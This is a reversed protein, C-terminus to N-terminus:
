IGAEQFRGFTRVRPNIKPSQGGTIQEDAGYPVVQEENKAIAKLWDLAETRAAARSAKLEINLRRFASSAALDAWTLLAEQPITGSPGMAVGSRRVASRVRDISRNIEQLVVDAGDAVSKAALLDAEDSGISALLDTKPPTIWSM